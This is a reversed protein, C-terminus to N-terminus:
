KLTIPQNTKFRLVINVTAVIAPVITDIYGQVEAPVAGSYGFPGALSVAAYIGIALINFVVTKSLYSPKSM